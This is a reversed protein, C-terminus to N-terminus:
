SGLNKRGHKALVADYRQLTAAARGEVARVIRARPSMPEQQWWEPHSLAYVRPHGAGLFEELPVFRWYGNSDSCYKFSRMLEDSYANVLGAYASAKFVATKENPNHFSFSRPQVELLSEFAAAERRLERTLQEADALSVEAADLHIGIEHGMAAIAHVAAIVAPEFLNYFDSRLNFYYTSRVQVGLEITALAVAAQPSCDVDHRWIATISGASAECVPGLRYRDAALRLLREYNARTFDSWQENQNSVSLGEV